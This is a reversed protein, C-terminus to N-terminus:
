EDTAGAVRREPASPQPGVSLGLVRDLGVTLGSATRTAHLAARMGADYATPSITDHTITLVEGQGGLIVEQKALVGALRLSHVPISAVQQGRALQDTYSAEVPGRDGRAATIMEATRVATGSPSDIKGAHHAEVIEISDFYQGAIAALATGVVSGISFNPIVIVGAEPRAAVQSELAALREASWGSTGVLVRIGRAIAFEVLGPSVAPTTVDILIDAGLMEERASSSGLAAYLEYGPLDNLISQALLGM